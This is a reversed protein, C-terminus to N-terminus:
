YMSNVWNFHKVPPNRVGPKKRKEERREADEEPEVLEGPEVGNIKGEVM